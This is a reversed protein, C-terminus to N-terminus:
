PEKNAICIRFLMKAQPKMAIRPAHVFLMSAVGYFALALSSLAVTRPWLLGLTCALLLGGSAYAVWREGAVWSPAPQWLYAFDGSVLSVVGLGALGLILLTLGLGRLHM